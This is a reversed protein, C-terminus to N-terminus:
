KGPAWDPFSTIRGFGLALAPGVNGLTVFDVDADAWEKSSSDSLRFIVSPSKEGSSSPPFLFLERSASDERGRVKCGAACLSKIEELDNITQNVSRHRDLTFRVEEVRIVPHLRSQGSDAEYVVSIEYENTATKRNYVEWVLASMDPRFTWHRGQSIWEKPEGLAILVTERAMGVRFHFQETPAFSKIGSRPPQVLVDQASVFGCLLYILFCSKM